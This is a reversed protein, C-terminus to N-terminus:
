PRCALYEEWTPVEAQQALDARVSARVIEEVTEMPLTSYRAGYERRKETLRVEMEAGSINSRIWCEVAERRYEEYALQGLGRETERTQRLQEAEREQRREAATLFGPPPALNDRLVTVYFGPPNRIGGGKILEDAWEVQRTADQDRQLGAALRKAQAESVGREILGSVLSSSTDFPLTAPTASGNQRTATFTEFEARAKPGPIYSLLWDPQGEADASLEWSARTLYGSELHPKHLKYMQVRFREHDLYRQQASFTCYDSYTIRAVPWNNKLAAFIRYSLIEYFRQASPRLERLYDYNLPRVPATNLVERYPDNLIVYVGDAGRGDPLREGTFVVGYRTFGAELRKEAGDAGRYNLKATIYAGANQHLAKRIDNTNKGSPPIGLERCIQALSGLRLLVPLPRRHEDIRRNVILTDLKYALQRAQGYRDSHSVEWKLEVEGVKDRRLIRIDVKGNKALNHIPLRSLVTETRIIHLPALEDVRRVIEAVDQPVPEHPPEM